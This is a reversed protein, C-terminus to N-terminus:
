ACVYDFDDTKELNSTDIQLIRIEADINGVHIM